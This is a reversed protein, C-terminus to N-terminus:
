PCSKQTGLFEDSFAGPQRTMLLLRDNAYDNHSGTINPLNFWGSSDTMPRESQGEIKVTAGEIPNGWIDVVQGKLQTGGGCACLLLTLISVTNRM